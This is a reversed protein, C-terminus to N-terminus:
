ADYNMSVQKVHSKGHKYLPLEVQTAVHVSGCGTHSMIYLTHIHISGLIPM